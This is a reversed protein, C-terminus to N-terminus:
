RCVDASRVRTTLVAHRADFGTKLQGINNYIGNIADRQQESTTRLDALQRDFTTHFAAELEASM